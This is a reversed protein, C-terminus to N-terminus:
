VRFGLGYIDKPQTLAIARETDIERGRERESERERACFFFPFRSLVHGDRERECMRERARERAREGKRARERATERVRMYVCVIVNARKRTCM